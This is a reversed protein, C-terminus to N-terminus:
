LQSIDRARQLTRFPLDQLYPNIEPGVTPPEKDTITITCQGLGLAKAYGIKHCLSINEHRLTLAFLLLAREEPDLNHYHVRFTFCSNAPACRTSMNHPPNQPTLNYASKEFLVWGDAPGPQGQYQRRLNLHVWHAPTALRADSIEVKGAWAFQGDTFGFSRCAICTLKPDCPNLERPMRPPPNPILRACSAGLVEYMSRLMGRLSAAPVFPVVTAANRYDSHFCTPTALTIRCSLSGSRQPVKARHGADGATASRSLPRQTFPVTVRM